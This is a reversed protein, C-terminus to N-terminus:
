ITEITEIPEVTVAIALQHNGGGRIIGRLPSVDGFDRGQALCIHDLDAILNNTPDLELWHNPAHPCYVSVWAHSADAGRLREVGIPPKTLLYGSVYKAALGIARLCGIMIHAFDQCVGIRQAFAIELPTHIETSGSEYRFDQYIRNCLEMSALGIPRDKTFSQLAYDKLDQHWAIYPSPWVFQSAWVFPQDLSYVMSDRVEEWAATNALSYHTYRATKRVESNSQVRLMRHPHNLSFFYRENDFADTQIQLDTAEPDVLLEHHLVTQWPSSKTRLYALHQALTVDSQYQYQTLHEIRLRTM